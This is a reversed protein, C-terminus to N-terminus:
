YVAAHFDTEERVGRPRADPLLGPPFALPGQQRLVGPM